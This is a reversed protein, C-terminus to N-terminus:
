EEAKFGVGNVCCLTIQLHFDHEPTPDGQPEKIKELAKKKNM